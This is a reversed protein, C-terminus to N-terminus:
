LSQLALYIVEQKQSPLLHAQSNDPQFHKSYLKSKKVAERCAIFINPLIKPKKPYPKGEKLQRM